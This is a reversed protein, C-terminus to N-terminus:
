AISLIPVSSIQRIMAAFARCTRSSKASEVPLARASVQRQRSLELQRRRLRPIVLGQIALLLITVCGLWVNQIFIFALSTVIQGGLFFPQVFADGIFGGLPEVEDKIMTAIEAPKVRHLDAPPFRLIRDFLEFRLVQLMREGLRGKYTNIYYKFMGNIIVLTLFLGSLVFLAPVRGAELGQFLTLRGGDSVFEPVSVSLPFIRQTAGHEYGRGQIPGNVILIEPFRSSLIPRCRVIMALIWIQERRTRRWIYLFLNREM